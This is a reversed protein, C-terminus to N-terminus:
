LLKWEGSSVKCRDFIYRFPDAVDKIKIDHQLRRCPLGKHEFTGILQVSGTNGSKPNSWTEVTGVSVSEDIYLKQAAAKLLEIDDQSLEFGARSFPNLQAQVPAVLAALVVAATLGGVIFKKVGQV